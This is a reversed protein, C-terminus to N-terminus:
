RDEYGFKDKLVGFEGPFFAGDDHTNCFDAFAHKDGDNANPHCNKCYGGLKRSGWRNCVPCRESTGM